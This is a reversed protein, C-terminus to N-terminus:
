SIRLKNTEYENIIKIVELINLVKKEILIDSLIVILEKNNEINSLAQNYLEESKKLIINTNDEKFDINDILTLNIKKNKRYM